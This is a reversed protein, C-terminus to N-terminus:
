SKTKKKEQKKAKKEKANLIPKKKEAKRHKVIEKTM